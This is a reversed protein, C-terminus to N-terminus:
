SWAPPNRVSCLSRSILGVVEDSDRNEDERFEWSDEVKLGCDDDFGRFRFWFCAEM